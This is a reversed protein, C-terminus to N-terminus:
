TVEITKNRNTNTFNVFYNWNFTNKCRECWKVKKHARFYGFNCKFPIKMKGWFCGIM